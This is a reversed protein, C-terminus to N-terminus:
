SGLLARVKATLTSLDYPKQIFACPGTDPARGSVAEESYGSTLLVPVDPRLRRLAAHAELGDLGPMTLDLIACVIEAAHEQFLETAEVGDSATLVTFGLHELAARGFRRIAVEDDAFLVTGRGRWPREAAGAVPMIAALRDLAPFHVTFTTGRGPASEVGVGARHARLIGQVAALGLGRGPFKTSFFPEFVRDRTAEDMGEGTDTVVLQVVDRAPWESAAPIRERCPCEVACRGESVSVTVRGPRDRIAEGANIVLNLLVQRLQSPDASIARAGAPLDVDLASKKSLSAVLLAHMDEVLRPLSVDEVVLQGRGSYALMQSTLGVCGRATKIVEEVARRASSAPPLDVLSLEAHGIIGQLMNNFDHAIGGALLGLSELKQAHQARSELLRREEEARMRETIDYLIVLYVGGFDQGLSVASCLATRSAGDKCRITAELPAPETGDQRAKDLRALWTTAIWERYVPDPYAQPWWHGLTPVDGLEYGFSRVFAPNLYLVNEREDCLAYPVPSVDIIKRFQAESRRVAEEARTRDTIDRSVGLVWSVAGRADKVPLKHTDFVRIEGEINALDHPNHVRRGALAEQDDQAFGRIGRAPDGHVLEPDWGNEVDTRGVVDHPQKGLARAFSANCMTTRLDRDKMFIMDPTSDLLTALLSAAAGQGEGLAAELEAVRARAQALDTVLQDRAAAADVMLGDEIGSIEGSDGGPTLPARRM